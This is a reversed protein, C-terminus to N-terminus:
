YYRGCMLTNALSIAKKKKKKTLSDKKKLWMAGRSCKNNHCVQQQLDMLVQHNMSETYELTQKAKISSYKFM